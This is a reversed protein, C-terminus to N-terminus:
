LQPAGGRRHAVIDTREGVADIGRQGVGSISLAVAARSFERAPGKAPALPTQAVVYLTRAIERISKGQRRMVGTQVAEDGV